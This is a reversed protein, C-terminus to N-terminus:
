LFSQKRLLQLLHPGIQRVPLIADICTGRMAAEPMVAVAADKPEQVIAYGGAEKLYKLGAAGDHNAGTLIIGILKDRYVPVASEFLVDVSPRAFNVPADMSLAFSKDQEILLHYGPPATYVFGPLVPEKEDIEKVQLRTKQNLIHALLSEKNAQLHQVVIIPLPFNAPLTMVIQSLATIGGASSGIVIVEYRQKPM